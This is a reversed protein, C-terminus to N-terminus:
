SNASRGGKGDQSLKQRPRFSGGAKTGRRKRQRDRRKSLEKLADSLGEKTAQWYCVALGIIPVFIPLLLSAMVYSTGLGEKAKRRNSPTSSGGGAGEAYKIRAGPPAEWRTERTVSHYYFSRLSAHHTLLQSWPVHAM